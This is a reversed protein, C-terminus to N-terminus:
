STSRAPRAPSSRRARPQTRCATPDRRWSGSATAATIPSSCAVVIHLRSRGAADGSLVRPRIDVLRWSPCTEDPVVKDAHATPSCRPRWRVRARRTCARAYRSTRATTARRADSARTARGASTRSSRMVGRRSGTSRRGRLELRRRGGVTRENGPSHHDPLPQPAWPRHDAPRESRDLECEPQGGGRRRDGPGRPPDLWRADEAPRPRHREPRGPLPRHGGGRGARTRIARGRRDRGAFHLVDGYGAASRCTRHQQRRPERWEATLTRDVGDIYLKALGATAGGPHTFVIHHWNTDNITVTSALWRVNEEGVYILHDTATSRSTPSAPARTSMIYQLPRPRIAASSGYSTRGPPSTSCTAWASWARRATSCSRGTMARRSRVPWTVPSPAPSPGTTRDSRTSSPARRRASAGTVSPDMMRWSRPTTRPRRRRLAGSRRPAFRAVKPPRRPRAKGSRSRRIVARTSRTARRDMTSLASARGM